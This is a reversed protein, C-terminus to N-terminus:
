LKACMFEGQSVLTRGTVGTINVANVAATSDEEGVGNLVGVKVTLVLAGPLSAIVQVHLAVANRAQAEHSTVDTAVVDGGTVSLGFFVFPVELGLINQLAAWGLVQREAYTVRDITCVGCVIAVFNVGTQDNFIRQADQLEASIRCSCLM